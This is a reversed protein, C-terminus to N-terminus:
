VPLLYRDKVWGVQGDPARVKHWVEGTTGVASAGAAQLVTGDPWAHLPQGDPGTRLYVGLHDTNGVRWQQPAPVVPTVTATARPPLPSASPSIAPLSRSSSAATSPIATSPWATPDLVAGVQVGAAVLLGSLLALLTHAWAPLRRPSHSGHVPLAVRFRELRRDTGTVTAAVALVADGTGFNELIRAPVLPASTARRWRRVTGGDSDESWTQQEAVGSGLAGAAWDAERDRMHLFVQVGTNALVQDPLTDSVAQVDALAQTTVIVSIDADRARALVHHLHLAGHGFASLEEVVVHAQLRPASGGASRRHHAVRALELLLWAGLAAVEDPMADGPLGLYWLGTRELM